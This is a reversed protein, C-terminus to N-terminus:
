NKKFYTKYLEGDTKVSWSNFGLQEVKDILPVPLFPTILEYISGNQIEKVGKIVKDLPHGGSNIIAIADFSETINKSDFWEPVNAVQEPEIVLQGNDMLDQGAKKRLINIVQELTVNGVAAAQRINTVKAITKRLIPNKLKKFVSSIEILVDELEPYHQLLEYIKTDPTIILKKNTM